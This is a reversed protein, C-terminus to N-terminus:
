WLGAKFLWTTQRGVEVYIRYAKACILDVSHTNLRKVAHLVASLCYIDRDYRLLDSTCITYISLNTKPMSKGIFNGFSIMSVVKKWM